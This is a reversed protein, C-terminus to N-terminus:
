QYVCFNRERRYLHTIPQSTIRAGLLSRQMKGLLLRSTLYIGMQSGRTILVNDVGIKLGRTENLYNVLVKRLEMNGYTSSYNLQEIGVRSNCVNRYLIAIDKLPTLRPDSVGDNLYVVGEKQDQFTRYFRNERYFDFGSKDPINAELEGLSDVNLVPLKRHVFTGKKPLTEVWGQFTLEEYAAVVTKRHIGLLDALQRSGPLRTEPKLVGTKIVGMIQNALQLYIPQRSGRELQIISKYPIM